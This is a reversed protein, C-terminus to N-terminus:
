NPVVNYGFWKLSLRALTGDAKAAALATNLRARLEHNDRKMAAAVGEGLVSGTLIPGFRMPPDTEQSRLTVFEYVASSGAMVADLRKAALDQYQALESTYLVVQAESKLYRDAFTEFTTGVHVGIRRGHLAQIFDRLAGSPRAEERDLNIRNLSMVSILPNHATTMFCGSTEAYPESFDVRRAREATKAMGGIYIDYVGTDLDDFVREWTVPSVTCSAGMRPCLEAIMDIEFGRITGQDDRITWPPYHSYTGIRVTDQARAPAALLSLIAVLLRFRTM